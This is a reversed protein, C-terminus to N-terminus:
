MPRMASLIDGVASEGSIEMAPELKIVIPLLDEGRTSGEVPVMLRLPKTCPEVLVVMAARWVAIVAKESAFMSPVTLPKAPLPM